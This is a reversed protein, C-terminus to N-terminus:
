KKAATAAGWLSGPNAFSPYLAMLDDIAAVWQKRTEPTTESLFPHIGNYVADGAVILGISPV